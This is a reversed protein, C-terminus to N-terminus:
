ETAYTWIDCAEIMYKRRCFRHRSIEGSKYREKLAAYGPCQNLNGSHGGAILINEVFTVCNQPLLLYWTPSSLYNELEAKAKDPNSLNIKIRYTEKKGDTSLYKSFETGDFYHVSQKLPGEGKLDLKGDFGVSLGPKHFYHGFGGGVYLLVHGCPNFDGVNDVFVVSVQSFDLSELQPRKNPYGLFSM